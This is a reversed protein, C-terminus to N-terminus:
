GLVALHVLIEQCVCMCSNRWFFVRSRNERPWTRVKIVALMILHRGYVFKEQFVCVLIELCVCGRVLTKPGFGLM